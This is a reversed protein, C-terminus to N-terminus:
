ASFDAVIQRAAAVDRDMQAILDAVADFREINRLRALFDVEVDQNYLSGQYDLLHIEVKLTPEDDQFTPNPGLSMAAPWAQGEVFARGAYIGEGPLLTCVGDLNATPFGLGAGRGAGHIVRGRIRYPETLLRAAQDVHGSAVLARIRSSSVVQGDIELPEVVDLALGAERCLDELVDVNGLRDRGFYFNAGEVLARADLAGRVIRDFFRRPTLRLLPEDTPYAIVADVGLRALLEAKRQTWTLPPPAHHPRLIRIPHPDFTLAVAPGGVERAAALLREVIRAHGRHVGDFNGISVAGRRLAEPLNEPDRILQV